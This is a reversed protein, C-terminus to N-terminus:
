KKTKTIRRPDIWSGTRQFNARATPWQIWEPRYTKGTEYVFLRGDLSGLVVEAKGDNKLDVLSCGTSSLVISERPHPMKKGQPVMETIKVAGDREVRFWHAGAFVDIEGDGGLDAIVIEGRSYSAPVQALVGDPRLFGTGDGKWAMIKDGDRNYVVIEAQGDGDLDALTPSGFSLVNKKFVSTMEGERHAAPVPQGDWTWVHLNGGSDIACVESKDDGWVNGMVPYIAIGHVKQPWGPLPQGTNDVGSVCNALPQQALHWHNQYDPQYIELKGDGNADGICPSYGHLMRQAPWNPVPKDEITTLVQGAILDIIGDDNIDVLPMSGWPDLPAPFVWPWFEGDGHIIRTSRGSFLDQTSDSGNPLPMVIEDRGDRDLDLVSPSSLWTSGREREAQNQKEATRLTVPWGEVPEGNAGFAFLQAATDPKAHLIKFRTFGSHTVPVVIEPQGDGDLDAVGASATVVGPLVVPWGPAVQGMPEYVLQSGSMSDRSTGVGGTTSQPNQAGAATACVFTAAMMSFRGFRFM